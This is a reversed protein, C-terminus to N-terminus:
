FGELFVFDYVRVCAFQFCDKVLKYEHAAVQVGGCFKILPDGQLCWARKVTAEIGNCNYNARCEFKLLEVVRLHLIM